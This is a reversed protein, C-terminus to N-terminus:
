NYKDSYSSFMLIPELIEEKKEENKEEKEIEIEEYDDDILEDEDETSYNYDSEVEDFVLPSAIVSPSYEMFYDFSEDENEKEKISLQKLYEIQILEAEPDQKLNKKKDEIKNYKKIEKEVKKNRNNQQYNMHKNINQNMNSLLQNMEDGKKKSKYFRIFLDKWDKFGAEKKIDKDFSKYFLFKWLFHNKTLTTWSKNIM